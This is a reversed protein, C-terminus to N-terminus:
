SYNFQKQQQSYKEKDQYMNEDAVNLLELQNNIEPSSLGYGASISLHFPHNNNQNYQEINNKIKHITAQALVEDNTPMIIVFEDGGFRGIFASTKNFTKRLINAMEVLALDGTIHGHEDNIEKFDNIDILILTVEAHQSNNFSALYRDITNRNNLGTLSDRSMARAEKNLLILLSSLVASPWVFSMGYFITQLVGGILPPIAFFAITRLEKQQDVLPEKQAKFFALLSVSSLYSLLVLSMPTSLPGRHFVNQNDLYFCWGTLSSSLVILAMISFPIHIFIFEQKKGFVRNYLRYHAYRLWFLVVILQLLFYLMINIYNVMRVTTSPHGNFVWMLIDMAFVLLTAFQIKRLLLIEYTDTFNDQYVKLFIITLVMSFVNIGINFILTETTNFTIMNTERENSKKILVKIM